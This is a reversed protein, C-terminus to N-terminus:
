TMRLLQIQITDVSPGFKITGLIQSSRLMQSNRESSCSCFLFQFIIIPAKSDKNKPTKKINNSTNISSMSTAYFCLLLLLPVQQFKPLYRDPRTKYFEWNM